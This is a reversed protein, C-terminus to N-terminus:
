TFPPIASGGIHVRGASVTKVSKKGSCQFGTLFLGSQMKSPCNTQM